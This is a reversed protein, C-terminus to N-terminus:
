WKKHYDSKQHTQRHKGIHKFDITQQTFKPNLLDIDLDSSKSINIHDIYIEVPKQLIHNIDEYNPQAKPSVEIVNSTQTKSFAGEIIAVTSNQASAKDPLGIFKKFKEMSEQDASFSCHIIGFLFFCYKLFFNM